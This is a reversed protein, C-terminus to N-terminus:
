DLSGPPAIWVSEFPFVEALRDFHRDYHLVGFGQEAAAAATLYDVPSIRHAGPRRGTGSGLELMAAVSADGVARTIPLQRFGGLVDHLRALEAATRATYLIEMVVPTAIVIAEARLTAGWREAVASANSRMWASTDAVVPRGDGFPPTESASV